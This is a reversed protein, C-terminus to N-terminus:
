VLLMNADRLVDRWPVPMHASSMKSSRGNWIKQLLKKISGSNGVTSVSPAEGELSLKQFVETRLQSSDTLAGCIFFAFVTSRVVSSHMRQSPWPRRAFSMTEQIAEMIEPVHPYDGSVITRLYVRTAARFINSSLERAHDTESAYPGLQSPAANLYTKDFHTARMVLEPISLRGKKRQEEKWVALASAEALVWVIHNECGMVSMMSLEESPPLSPDFVGSAEPSYLARIFHLFRPTEQTTVAALVDFWIAAKIIFRTTEPCTQLIDRPDENRFVSHAYSYSLQLWEQWRGAGGDFLISSIISIAALADDESYRPKKLVQLLDDYQYKTDSDRLAVFNESQCLARQHHISALLRAADRSAGPNLVSPSIINRIHISDALLYQLDMVEGLYYNVLQDSTGGPKLVVFNMDYSADEDDELPLCNSYLDEPYVAHYTQSFSSALAPSRLQNNWPVISNSNYSTSYLDHHSSSHSSGGFPSGGRMHQLSHPYDVGIWPPQERIASEHQLRRPAESPSLSLTPTPPSESSSPTTDEELRLIPSDHESGRPGTGSHGKIMGQAALFSKIKDRMDSVNRSERLWDPRKAGFGLCQLRLRVCTDCFGDQNQHEDCKKRRIRCTYCGSKARVAGKAKPAGPKKSMPSKPAAPM